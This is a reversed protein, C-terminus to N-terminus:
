LRLIAFIRGKLICSLSLSCFWVDPNKTRTKFSYITICVIHPLFRLCSKAFSPQQNYPYIQIAVLRIKARSRLSNFNVVWSRKACMLCADNYAVSTYKQWQLEREDKRLKWRTGNVTFFFSTSELFVKKKSSLDSAIIFTNLNFEQYYSLCPLM